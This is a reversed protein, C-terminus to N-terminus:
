LAAPEPPTLAEGLGSPSGCLRTHPLSISVSQPVRVRPPRTGSSSPRLIHVGPRVTYCLTACDAHANPFMRLLNGFTCHEGYTCAIATECMFRVRLRLSSATRCGGTAHVHPIRFHMHFRWLTHSAVHCPFVHRRPARVDAHRLCLHCPVRPFTSEDPISHCTACHSLIARHMCCRRNQCAACLSLVARHM